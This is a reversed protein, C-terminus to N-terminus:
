KKYKTKKSLKELQSLFYGKRSELIQDEIDESDDELLFYDLDYYNIHEKWNNLDEDTFVFGDNVLNKFFDITGEPTENYVIIEFEELKKPKMKAMNIDRSYNKNLEKRLKKLTIKSGFLKEVDGLLEGNRFSYFNLLNNEVLFNYDQETGKDNVYIESFRVAHEYGPTDYGQMSHIKKREFDIVVLGYDTPALSSYHGYVSSMLFKNTGNEYDEKMEFFAKCHNNIALDEDNSNFEKSFFMTNYIGTKRAMKILTGDKKRITEAVSGGM